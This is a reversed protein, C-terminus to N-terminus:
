AAISRLMGRIGIVIMVVGIFALAVGVSTSDFQNGFLRFNTHALKDIAGLYVAGTLLIVGMMGLLSLIIIHVARAVRVHNASFIM